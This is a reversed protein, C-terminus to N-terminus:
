RLLRDPVLRTPPNGNTDNDFCEDAIERASERWDKVIATGVGAKGTEANTKTKAHASEDLEANYAPGAQPTPAPLYEYPQALAKMVEPIQWGCRIAFAALESLLVEGHPNTLVGSYFAQPHIPGNTSVNAQAIQLREAFDLPFGFPIGRRTQLWRTIGHKNDDPEIDLTLCVCEWLKCKPIFKWKNWKAPVANRSQSRSNDHLPTIASQAKSVRIPKKSETM